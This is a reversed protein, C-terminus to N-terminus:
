CGRDARARRAKQPVKIEKGDIGGQANFRKAAAMVGNMVSLGYRAEEGTEPGVVGIILPREETDMQKQQREKEQKAYEEAQRMVKHIEAAKDQKAEAPKAQKDDSCGCLLGLMIALFILVKKNPTVAM